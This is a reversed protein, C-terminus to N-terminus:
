AVEEKKAEVVIELHQAMEPEGICYLFVKGPQRGLCRRVREMLEAQHTRLLTGAFASYQIRNLGYNMCVDAVKLRARNSAIDYIVICFMDVPNIWGWAAAGKM